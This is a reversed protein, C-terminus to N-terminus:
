NIKRKREPNMRWHKGGYLIFFTGHMEVTYGPFLLEHIGHLVDKFFQYFHFSSDEFAASSFRILLDYTM